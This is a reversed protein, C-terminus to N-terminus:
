DYRKRKSSSLIGLQDRYKAITRRSVIIKFDRNLLNVLKQDSLPSAKDEENIMQQILEKVRTSSADENSSTNLSSSFFVKMEVLGFPTQVYKGKVARSVTSEHCGVVEAVERMTLPKLSSLGNVFFDTQRLIIQKTVSLLTQKRQELSKMIWGWQLGKERVFASVKEDDVNSLDQEYQVNFSLKPFYDENISAEFHGNKREIIIDPIIYTTQEHHFIHGPRPELMQIHDFIQQIEKPKVNLIKALAKWSKQTFLEFYDKIIIEALENRHQERQLQILLCEQVNRAGVGVPDLNQIIEVCKTIDQETVGFRNIVDQAEFHLYGNNDINEILHDVVNREINSIPLLLIQSRLHDFLKEPEGGINELWNHQKSQSSTNSTKKRPIDFPTSEQIEVLPNEIAIDHLFTLLEQSSYQLLEIAQSLEKTMTLKLTQEQFLGPRMEM